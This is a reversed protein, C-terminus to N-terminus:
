RKGSKLFKLSYIDLLFTKFEVHFNNKDVKQRFEETANITRSFFDNKRLMIKLNNTCRLM